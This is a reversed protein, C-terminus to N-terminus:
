GLVVDVDISLERCQRRSGPFLKEGPDASCAQHAWLSISWHSAELSSVHCLM